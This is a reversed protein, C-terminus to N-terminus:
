EIGATAAAVRATYWAATSPRELQHASRQRNDDRRPIADAQELAAERRQAGLQGFGVLDQDDVRGRSIGGRNRCRRMLGSRREDSAIPRAGAQGAVGTPPRRPVIEHGEDVVVYPHKRVPRSSQDVSKVIRVDYEHGPADDHWSADTTCGSWKWRASCRKAAPLTGATAVAARRHPSATTAPTSVTRDSHFLLGGHRAPRHKFWAMRRADIVLDPGPPPARSGSRGAM